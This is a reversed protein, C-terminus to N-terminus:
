KKFSQIKRAIVFLQYNIDLHDAPTEFRPLHDATGFVELVMVIRYWKGPTKAAQQLIGISFDKANSNSRIQV